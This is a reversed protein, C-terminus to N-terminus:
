SEAESPVNEYIGHEAVQRLRAFRQHLLEAVRKEDADPYQMKIGARMRGCVEEFMALGDYLKRAPPIRRARLVRERYIEDFLRQNPQVTNPEDAM